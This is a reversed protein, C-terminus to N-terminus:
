TSSSWNWKIRIEGADLVEYGDCVVLKMGEFVYRQNSPLRVFRQCCDKMQVDNVENGKRLGSLKLKRKTELLLEDEGRSDKLFQTHLHWAQDGRSMLLSILKDATCEVSLCLVGMKKNLSYPNRHYKPQVRIPVKAKQPHKEFFDKIM